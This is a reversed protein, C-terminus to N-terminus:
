RADLAEKVIKLAAEAESQLYPQNALATSHVIQNLACRACELATAAKNHEVWDGAPNEKMPAFPDGWCDFRKM